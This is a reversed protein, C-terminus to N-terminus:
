RDRDREVEKKRSTWRDMWGGRERWGRTRCTDMRDIWGDTWGDREKEMYRKYRDMWGDMRSGRDGHIEEVM